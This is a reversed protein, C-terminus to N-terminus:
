DNAANKNRGRGTHAQITVQIRMLFRLGSAAINQKTAFSEIYM